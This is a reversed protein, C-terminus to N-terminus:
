LQLVGDGGNTATEGTVESGRRIKTDNIYGQFTIIIRESYEVRNVIMYIQTTRTPQYLGLEDGSEGPAKLGGAAERTVRRLEM